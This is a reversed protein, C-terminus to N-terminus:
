VDSLGGQAAKLRKQKIYDHIPRELFAKLNGCNTCQLLVVPLIAGTSFDSTDQIVYGPVQSNRETLVDWNLNNCLECSRNRLKDQFYEFADDYSVRPYAAGSKVPEDSM